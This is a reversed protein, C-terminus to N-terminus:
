PSPHEARFDEAFAEARLREGTAFQTLDEWNLFRGPAFVRATLFHGVQKNGVYIADRPPTSEVTHAITHHVQSAFLEAMLYNHYSAPALVLHMKSAYDPENRDDPRHLMQYKEVLDWWLKNLDQEPNAYLAQEFRLMVQCWRSFILLQARRQRHQALAYAPADPISVGMAALWEASYSLRAFLAAVGQGTLAHSPARLLFPRTDAINKSSYVAHGLSEMLQSLGRADATVNALVRVNQGSRDIDACLAQASKDPRAFLDSNKLVDDVPLDISTFFARGLAVLDIDRVVADPDFGFVAPAEQFFLDSYHWPRLAERKIGFQAALKSDIEDKVKIYDARTLEDLQEFLRLVRAQDQENVALQMAHFDRFGLERAAANRLRVLELFDKQVKPGVAKGAEWARQRLATDYSTTLLRGLDNYSVDEGDLQPRFVNFTQELAHARASISHLLEGSVQKEFYAFYLLEIQRAVSPDLDSVDREHLRKLQAFRNAHSLAADLRYQAELKAVMDEDRGFASARWSAWSAAIQHDRVDRLHDNILTQAVRAVAVKDVKDGGQRDAARDSQSSPACGVLLITLYLGALARRTPRARVARMNAATLSAM